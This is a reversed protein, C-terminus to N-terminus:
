CLSRLHLLLARRVAARVEEESKLVHKEGRLAEDRAWKEVTLMSTDVSTVNAVWATHEASRKEAASGVIGSLTVNGLDVAVHILHDDVHANWRL